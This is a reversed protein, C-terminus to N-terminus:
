GRPPVTVDTEAIHTSQYQRRAVLVLTFTGQLGFLLRWKNRLVWANM